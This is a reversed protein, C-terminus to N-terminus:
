TGSSDGVFGLVFVFFNYLKQFKSFEGNRFISTAGEVGVVCPLGYERAVVAGHSILGGLETAVGGSDLTM